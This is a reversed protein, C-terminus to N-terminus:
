ETQAEERENWIFQVTYESAPYAGSLFGSIMLEANAEANVLIGNDEAKSQVDAKMALMSGQIDGLLLPSFINKNEDYVVLSTEDVTVDLIEAHPLTVTIIKKQEDM